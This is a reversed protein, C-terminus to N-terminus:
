WIRTKIGNKDNVFLQEIPYYLYDAYESDDISTNIVSFHLSNITHMTIELVPLDGDVAYVITNIAPVVYVDKIQQESSVFIPALIRKCRCIITMNDSLLLTLEDGEYEYQNGEGDILTIIYPEYGFDPTVKIEYTGYEYTGSIVDRVSCNYTIIDLNYERPIELFVAEYTIDGTVPDLDSEDYVGDDVNVVSWGLFEYRYQNTSAKTPTPGTYDPQEGHAWEDTEKVEGNIIWRVTYTNTTKAFVAYYDINDVVPTLSIADSTTPNINWGLFTYTYKGAPDIKTPTSGNYQPIDGYPVENDTELLQSGDENYWRVRYTKEWQSYLVLDNTPFPSSSTYTQGSGNPNTNWGKFKYGQRTPTPMSWSTVDTRESAQVTTSMYPCDAPYIRFDSFTNTNGTGDIDCRIVIYNTTPVFTLSTQNGIVALRELTGNWNGASDTFFVFLQFGSLATNAVFDVTYAKGATVNIVPKSTAPDAPIYADDVLARGTFGIDSIDLVEVFMGSKLSEDAWHKFSFISDYTVYVPKFYATYTTSQNVTVTRIPNTSGDEWKDFKYGSAPTATLTLPTGQACVSGNVAGSISGNQASLNVLCTFDNDYYHGCSCTYRTYGWSTATPQVVTLTYSHTHPPTYTIDIDINEFTANPTVSAIHNEAAIILRYDGYNSPKPYLTDTFTTANQNSGGMGKYHYCKTDESLELGGGSNIYGTRATLASQLASVKSSSQCKYTIKVEDITGNEILRNDLVVILYARNNGASPTSMNSTKFSNTGISSILNGAVFSVYQHSNNLDYLNAM